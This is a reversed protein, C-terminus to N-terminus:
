ISMKETINNSLMRLRTVATQSKALCAAFVHRQSQRASRQNAHLTETEAVPAFGVRSTSFLQGHSASGVVFIRGELADGPGSVGLPLWTVKVLPQQASADTLESASADAQHRDRISM